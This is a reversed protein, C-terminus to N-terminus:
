KFPNINTNTITHGLVELLFRQERFKQQFGLIAQKHFLIFAGFQRISDTFLDPGILSELFHNKRLHPGDQETRQGFPCGLPIGVDYQLDVPEVQAHSKRWFPSSDFSEFPANM